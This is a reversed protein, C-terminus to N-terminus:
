VFYRSHLVPSRGVSALEFSVSIMVKASFEFVNPKSKSNM